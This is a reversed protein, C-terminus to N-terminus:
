IFKKDVTTVDSIHIPILYPPMVLPMVMIEKDYETANDLTLTDLAPSPVICGSIITTLLLFLSPSTIYKAYMM